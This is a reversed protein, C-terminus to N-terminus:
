SDARSHSAVPQDDQNREDKRKPKSERKTKTARKNKRAVTNKKNQLAIKVARNFAWEGEAYKLLPFWQYLDKRVTDCARRFKNGHKVRLADASLVGIYKAVVTGTFSNRVDKLIFGSYIAPKATPLPLKLDNDGERVNENHIRISDIIDTGISGITSSSNADARPFPLSIARGPLVVMNSKRDTLNLTPSFWINLPLEHLPQGYPTVDKTESRYFYLLIFSRLKEFRVFKFRFSRNLLKSAM